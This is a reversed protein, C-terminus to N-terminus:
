TLIASQRHSPALVRLQWSAFAWRCYVSVCVKVRKKEAIPDIEENDKIEKNKQRKEHRTEDSKHEPIDLEPIVKGSVYKTLKESGLTRIAEEIEDLRDDCRQRLRQMWAWDEDPVDEDEDDPEHGKVPEVNFALDKVLDRLYAELKVKRGTKPSLKPKKPRRTRPPSRDDKEDEEHEEDEEDARKRKDGTAPTTPKGPSPSKATASKKSGHKASSGDVADASGDDAKAQKSPAKGGKDNKKDKPPM